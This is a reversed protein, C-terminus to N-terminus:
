KSLNDYLLQYNFSCRSKAVLKFEFKEIMVSVTTQMLASSKQQRIHKMEDESVDDITSKNIREIEELFSSREKTLIKGSKNVIRKVEEIVDEENLFGKCIQPTSNSNFTGGYILALLHTLESGTLALKEM